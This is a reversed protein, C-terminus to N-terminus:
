VQINNNFKNDKLLPVFDILEFDKNKLIMKKNKEKSSSSNNQYIHFNNNQRSSIPCLKLANNFKVSQPRVKNNTNNSNNDIYKNKNNKDREDSIINLKNLELKFEKKNLGKGTPILNRNSPFIFNNINPNNKMEILKNLNIKKNKFKVKNLDELLFSNSKNKEM